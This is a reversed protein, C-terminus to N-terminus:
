RCGQLMLCAIFGALNILLFAFAFAAAAVLLIYWTSTVVLAATVVALSLIISAVAASLLCILGGANGFPPRRQALAAALLILLSASSIALVAWAAATISPLFGFAFLVGIAAAFVVSLIVGACGCAKCNMFM